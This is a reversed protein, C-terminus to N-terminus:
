HEGQTVISTSSEMREIGQPKKGSGFGKNEELVTDNSNLGNLLIKKEEGDLLRSKELQKVREEPPLDLLHGMKEVKTRLYKELDNGKTVGAGTMTAGSRRLIHAVYSDQSVSSSDSEEGEDEEDDEQDSFSHSSHRTSTLHNEESSSQGGGGQSSTELNQNRLSVQDKSDLDLDSPEFRHHSGAFDNGHHDQSIISAELDQALLLQDKRSPKSRLKRSTSASSKKGKGVVKEKKTKKKRSKLGETGCRWARPVMGVREKVKVGEAELAEMKEPNNTMLRCDEVGLDRLIAAAVDYKRADPLHGLLINAAVTDHGMDQLNYAMLKSLLGIGRGEQRLYVIVGRAPKRSASQTSDLRSHSHKSSHSHHHPLGSECILRIAEDLQEGCDCRQSGITEGTYCESHIRVLPSTEIEFSTSSLHTTNFDNEDESLPHAEVKKGKAKQSTSAKQFTPGLRGVYAGRVIREMETEENGWVEDLTRSRLAPLDGLLNEGWEETDQAEDVVLALHEKNDHNNKYLHLFVEGHPTPVRTRAYCRISLPPPRILPNIQHLQPQPPQPTSTSTTPFPIASTSSFSIEELHQDIVERDDKKIASPAPVEQVDEVARVNRTRELQEAQAEQQKLVTAGKEKALGMQEKMEKELRLRVSRPAQRSSYYAREEDTVELIDDKFITGSQSQENTIPQTSTSVPSPASQNLPSSIQNLSHDDDLDCNAYSGARLRPHNISPSTSPSTSDSIASQSSLLAQSSSEAAQNEKRSKELKMKLELRRKRESAPMQESVAKHNPNPKGDAGFAHHFHHRTVHPGSSLSAALIIPDIPPRRLAALTALPKKKNKPNYTSSSHSANSNSRSQRNLSPHALSPSSSNSANRLQTSTPASTSTLLDLIDLDGRNVSSHTAMM